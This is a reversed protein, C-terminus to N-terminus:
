THLKVHITEQPFDKGVSLNLTKSFNTLPHTVTVDYDGHHLSIDVFGTSDAIARQPRSGWEQILEDVVDGAPTNKFNEDALTTENFGALAPGSFMIIGEVAPHAYAERLIMSLYEAQGVFM